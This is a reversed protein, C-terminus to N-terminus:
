THLLSLAEARRPLDVGQGDWLSSPGQGLGQPLVCARATDM